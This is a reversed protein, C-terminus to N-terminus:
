DLEYKEELDKGNVMLTEEGDPSVLRVSDPGVEEVTYLIGSEKSKVKLGSSIPNKEEGDVKTKLVLDIEESLAKVKESWVERMLRIIDDDKLTKM